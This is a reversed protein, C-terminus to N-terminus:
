EVRAKLLNSLGRVSEFREWLADIISQSCPSSMFVVRDPDWGFQAFIFRVAPPAFPLYQALDNWQDLNVLLPRDRALFEATAILGILEGGLAAAAGFVESVGSIGDRSGAPVVVAFQASVQDRLHDRTKPEDREGRPTSIPLAGLSAALSPVGTSEGAERGM